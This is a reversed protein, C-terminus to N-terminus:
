VIAKLLPVMKAFFRLKKQMFISVDAFNLAGQCYFTYKRFSCILTHKRALHSTELMVTVLKLTPLTPPTIKGGGGVGGCFSVWFLGGLNRNIRDIRSLSIPCQTPSHTQPHPVSGSLLPPIIIKLDEM